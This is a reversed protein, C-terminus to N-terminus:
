RRPDIGKKSASRLLSDRIARSAVSLSVGLSWSRGRNELRTKAIMLFESIEAVEQMGVQANLRFKAIRYKPIRSCSCLDRAGGIRGRKEDGVDAERESIRAALIRTAHRSAM